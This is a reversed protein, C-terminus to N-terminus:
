EQRVQPRETYGQTPVGNSFVRGGSVSQNKAM